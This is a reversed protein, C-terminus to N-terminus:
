KKITSMHWHDSEKLLYITKGDVTLTYRPGLSTQEPTGGNKVIYDNLSTSDLKFDLADGSYHASGDSHADETGGTINIVCSDGCAKKLALVSQTTKTNIGNFNVCGTVQGSACPGAYTDVNGIKLATRVANSTIKEAETMITGRKIPAGLSGGGPQGQVVAPELDFSVNLLNPNIENLILWSVIILILGIVANKAREKGATKGMIADSSMYQFGSIVIMVVATVAALGIALKFIAPLYTGLINDGDLTEPLGPLPALLTYGEAALLSSFPLFLAISLITGLLIKKFNIKKM